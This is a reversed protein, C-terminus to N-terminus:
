PREAPRTARNRGMAPRFTRSKRRFELQSAGFNILLGTDIGTATLYNVVQVEHAKNLIRIAKCEVLVRDNVLMDASFTGVVRDRYLVTIHRERQVTLQADRLELSLANTYVSEVFGSGLTRHVKM